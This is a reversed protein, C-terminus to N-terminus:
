KKTILYGVVVGLVLLVVPSSLISQAAGRVGAVVQGTTPEVQIQPPVIQVKPMEVKTAGFVKKAGNWVWTVVGKVLDFLFFGELSEPNPRFGVTQFYDDIASIAAQRVRVDGAQTRFVERAVVLADIPIGRREVMERIGRYVWEEFDRM